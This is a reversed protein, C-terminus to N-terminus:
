HNSIGLKYDEFQKLLVDYKYEWKLAKGIANSRSLAIDDYKVLLEKLTEQMNICNYCTTDHPNPMNFGFRNTM